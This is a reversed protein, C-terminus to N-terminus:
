LPADLQTAAAATGKARREDGVYISIPGSLAALLGILAIPGGLTVLLVGGVTLVALVIDRRNSREDRGRAGLVGVALYTGGALIALRPGVWGLSPNAMVVPHLQVAAVALGFLLAGAALADRLGSAVARVLGRRRAVFIGHVGIVLITPGFTWPDELAYGPERTSAGFLALGVLFALGCAALTIRSM